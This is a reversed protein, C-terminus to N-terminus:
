YDAIMKLLDRSLQYDPDRTLAGELYDRAESFRGQAASMLALRHLPRPDDPLVEAAELYDRQAPEIRGAQFDGDGQRILLRGLNDRIAAAAHYHTLAEGQRGIRMLANGAVFHAQAPRTFDGGVWGPFAVMVGLVVVTLDRLLRRRDRWSGTLHALGVGSMMATLPVLPMRYRSNVFFLLLSGSFVVGFMIAARTEPRRFGYIVGLITLPLMSGLSIAFLLKLLLSAETALTLPRNNGVERVNLLLLTKKLLSRMWGAPDAAIERWGMRWLQRSTEVPTLERGADIEAIRRADNETWAAGVGPLSSAWGTAGRANGIYFNGGGQTSITVLNGSARWNAITVPALVLAAAMIHVGATSLASHKVPSTLHVRRAMVAASLPLLLLINPRCLAALALLGGSLGARFLSPHNWVASLAYVLAVTLAAAVSAMLVEGSFYVAAGTAVYLLGAIRAAKIGGIREALRFVMVITIIDAALNLLRPPLWGTGFIGRVAALLYPYLPARPFPLYDGGRGALIADAWGTYFEPDMGPALFWAEGKVQLWYVVRLLVMLLVFPWVARLLAKLMRM